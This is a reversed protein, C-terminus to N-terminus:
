QYVSLYKKEVGLYDNQTAALHLFDLGLHNPIQLIALIQYKQSELALSSWPSGLTMGIGDRLSVFAIGIVDRFQM